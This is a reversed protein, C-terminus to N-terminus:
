AAAGKLERVVRKVDQEFNKLKRTDSTSVSAMLKRSRDALRLEFKVVGRAISLVSWDSWHRELVATMEKMHKRQSM